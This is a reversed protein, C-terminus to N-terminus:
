TRKLRRKKQTKREEQPVLVYRKKSYYMEFCEPRCFDAGKLDFGIVSVQIHDDGLPIERGCNDCKRM